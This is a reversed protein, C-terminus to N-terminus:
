RVKIIAQYAFRARAGNEWVTIKTIDKGRFGKKPTYYVGVGRVKRGACKNDGGRPITFTEGKRFSIKGSKPKVTVWANLYGNSAKCNADWAVLNQIRTMKGRKAVVEAINAAGVSTITFALATLVLSTRYM